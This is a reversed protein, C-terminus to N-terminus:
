GKHVMWGDHRFGVRNIAVGPQLGQDFLRQVSVGGSMGGQQLMGAVAQQTECALHEVAIGLQPAPLLRVIDKLIGHQAQVPRERDNAGFRGSVKEVHRGLLNAPLQQIQDFMVEAGFAVTGSMM